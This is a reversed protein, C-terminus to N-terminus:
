HRCSCTSEMFSQTMTNFPYANGSGELEWYFKSRKKDYNGVENMTASDYVRGNIITYLVHESDQINELPNGDIVILDALKGEKVSGLMKGMGLYEAGNITAAKLAELNSMGGQELMWLEWHAGLGQLQGHAGLNIKVGADALMKCSQSTLIHGNEYEEDPAMTRHRSRSDIIARPTFTLLREKEWVNTKQYWYYEGNLGAYNVILTPTNSTKSAAWFQIVDKHLPAVPINHEVSSHGDAVMSMNHYFFSGGEPFVMIDLERAAQIIQQRQERRPQNYSKVSFAGYAKTRRLASKADELSNIEAKFDGDAGYLITGTSFIRPGIMEGSKVMESQAFTIETNVSPDHTTTVGYALNAFYQYHKQPSLGGRFAGLHAHVDILGPMITKGELDIVKTNAPIAVEGVGIIKNEKILVTGSEIVEDNEMTIIRANTFAIMGEPKDAKVTLSIKMGTTDLPPVSDVANELFLFHDTLPASFYENGLTWNVSKSDGDWHLNIGADVAVQAVPIAKTKASLEFTKGLKPMPAIYVKFLEVFAVWKNDPSPTFMTTYSTNFVPEVKKSKLNYKKFAKKISGFVFGGTQYFIHQDDVSFKPNEGEGQLYEAKKTTLDYIYLGPKKTFSFGQHGNGAAKVYVIKTGDNSFSPQRYIGKEENIKVRSGNQLDMVYINGLDEDDWTVYVLKKGDKSFSPEAEFDKNDTLRRMSPYSYLHGLANFIITKGNPSKTVNRLVKVDIEEDFASNEFQVTNMIRHEIDVEFPIEVADGNNVDVKWIKGKGWIIIHKDDPTWDFGTYIGFITWAEQQDKTLGKFLPFDQGTELDHIFLVSETRVRRVYAIKKGSNSIEPRCAGGPGGVVTEVEGKEFDYRRIVFIQDNPDKNYQFYGGPYMDESFYLYKGDKSTSPENVDQQDNKKKTLQIGSGGTKHYMWMEGAGLSRTSSFHKRGILYEGDASWVGNNLLRFSEKTIQKANSGDKDMVWINDGGGADSTFSISKGDPSFRPQVEWALGSRLVKANGGSFPMIFIDGLMDFVISQGDPSVDLNMWTGEDTNINVTTYDGPPNNVDWKDKEQAFLAISFFYFIAITFTAKMYSQKSKGFIYIERPPLGM